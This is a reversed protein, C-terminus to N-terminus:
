EGGMDWLCQGIRWTCRAIDESRNELGQLVALVDYLAAVGDEAKGTHYRCWANEEKAQLGTQSDDGLLEKVTSFLTEADHWKQMGEM